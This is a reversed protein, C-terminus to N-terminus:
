LGKDLRVFVQTNDSGILGSSGFGAEPTPATLGTIAPQTQVTEFTMSVPNGNAPEFIGEIVSNVPSNQILRILRINAIGSKNQEYEGSLLNQIGGTTRSRFTYTGDPKFNFYVSDFGFSQFLPSLDAGASLWEGILGIDALKVSIEQNDRMPIAKADVISANASPKLILLEEGTAFGSTFLEIVAISDGATHNVSISDLIAKGGSITALLDGADIPQNLVGGKYVPRTFFLTLTKNDGSISISDFDPNIIVLPPPDVIETKGECSFFLQSLLLFICFRLLNMFCTNFNYDCFYALHM